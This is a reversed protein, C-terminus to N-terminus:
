WHKFEADSLNAIETENLEKPPIKNQEKMQSINRQRRLKVAERHKNRHILYLRKSEKGITSFAGIFQTPHLRLFNGPHTM